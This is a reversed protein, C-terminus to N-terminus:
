DGFEEDRNPTNTVQHLNTGDSRMIYINTAVSTETVSYSSGPTDPM